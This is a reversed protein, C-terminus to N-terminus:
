AGRVAKGGRNKRPPSLRDPNRRNRKEPASTFEVHASSLLDKVVPNEIYHPALGSGLVTKLITARASLSWSDIIIRINDIQLKQRYGFERHEEFSTDAKSGGTHPNSGRRATSYGPGTGNELSTLVSNFSAHLLKRDKKSISKSSERALATMRHLLQQEDCQLNWTEETEEAYERAAEFILAINFGAAIQVDVDSSDLQETFVELAHESYDQLEEINSAVFGWCTMARSVVPGNDGAEISHGDSEVIDLLFDMLEQAATESGGGCMTAISMAEIAAIKISAEESDQCVRKLSPYVLDYITESEISIITIALAKIAALTEELSSGGRVSRLLAPVLETLQSEIVEAAFNHKTLYAYAVLTIERGKASSRKRDLLEAICDRLKDAWTTSNEEGDESNVMSSAPSEEDDSDTVDEEESAYRSNARSAARSPIPSSAPSARASEPRSRGKKSLTKGSELLIKKRLDRM